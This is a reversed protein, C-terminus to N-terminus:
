PVNQNAVIFSSLDGAAVGVFHGPDLSEIKMWESVSESGDEGLGLQGNKNQGIGWVEGAANVVVVHGNGIAFDLVNEFMEGELLKVEESPGGVLHVLSAEDDEIGPKDRGWLYLDGEKSLAGFIWGCGDIKRIKIGGLASVQCPKSAPEESSPVRGLCSPHRGDGWSFINGEATLLHFCTTGAILKSALGPLMHHEYKKSEGDAQSTLASSSGSPDLYWSEFASYTPFDLVHIMRSGKAQLMTIATRGNGSIAVNSLTPSDDNGMRSSRLDKQRPSSPNAQFTYLHGTMSLLALPGNLSDGVITHIDSSTIGESPLPLIHRTFSSQNLYGQFVIKDDTKVLSFVDGNSYRLRHNVIRIM